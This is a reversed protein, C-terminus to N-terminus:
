PQTSTSPNTLPGTGPVVAEDLTLVYILMAVLMVIAAVVVRWDKHPKWPAPPSHHQHSM